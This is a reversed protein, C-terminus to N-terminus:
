TERPPAMFPYNFTDFDQVAQLNILRISVATLNARTMRGKETEGKAPLRMPLGYMEMLRDFQVKLEEYYLVYTVIQEGEDNFVYYHQPLTHDLQLRNNTINNFIWKNLAAETNRDEGKYGFHSCYYESVWRDYPNRVVVFTDTDERFVSHNLNRPVMWHPPIHWYSELDVWLGHLPASNPGYKLRPRHRIRRKNMWDPFRCGSRRVYHCRGWLIGHKLALAEITTGGTKTIHVFELTRNTINNPSSSQNTPVLKNFSNPPYKTLYIPPVNARTEDFIPPEHGISSPHDQEDASGNVITNVQNTETETETESQSQNNMTAQNLFKDEYTINTTKHNGEHGFQQHSPLYEFYRKNQFMSALLFIIVTVLTLTLHKRKKVFRSIM